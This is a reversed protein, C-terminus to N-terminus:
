RRGFTGAGVRPRLAARTMVHQGSEHNLATGTSVGRDVSAPFEGSPRGSSTPPRRGASGVRLDLWVGSCESTAAINCAETLPSGTSRSALTDQRTNQYM